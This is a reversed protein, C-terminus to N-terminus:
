AEDELFVSRLDAVFGPLEPEAFLEDASRVIESARGPRYVHVARHSRDVLWGLRVGNDTYEKMKKKADVLRDTPSMIEVAFDPSVHPFPSRLSFPVSKWREYSVWSIDPSRIAGNPLTYGASSGGVFGPQALSRNWLMLAVSLDMGRFETWADSPSM